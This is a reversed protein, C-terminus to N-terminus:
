AVEFVLLAITKEREVVDPNLPMYPHLTESLRRWLGAAALRECAARAGSLAGTAPDREALWVRHTFVVLGGPRVLRAWERFLPEFASVYSLVGVCAVADFGDAEYMGGFAPVGDAAGGGAAGAASGEAGGGDAAGAGKRERAWDLDAPRLADYVGPKQAECYGLSAASIDCGRLSLAGAAPPAARLEAGFLGTGCGADLVRTGGGEGPPPPLRAVLAAAALRPAAYGWSRLTADYSAAWKDYLTVAGDATKPVVGLDDM